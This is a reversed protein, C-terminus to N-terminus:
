SRWPFFTKNGTLIWKIPYHFIAFYMLSSPERPDLAYNISQLVVGIPQTIFAFVIFAITWCLAIFGAWHFILIFRQFIERM